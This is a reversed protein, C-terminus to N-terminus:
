AHIARRGYENFRTGALRQFRGDLALQCFLSFMRHHAGNRGDVGFGIGQKEMITCDSLDPSRSTGYAPFQEVPSFAVQDGVRDIGELSFWVHDIEGTLLAGLGLGLVLFFGVRPLPEVNGPPLPGRRRLEDRGIAHSIRCFILLVCAPEKKLIMFSQTCLHRFLEGRFAPATKEHGRAPIKFSLIVPEGNIRCYFFM